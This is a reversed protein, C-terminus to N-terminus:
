AAYAGVCQLTTSHSEAIQKNMFNDDTCVKLDRQKDTTVNSCGRPLSNNSYFNKPRDCVVRVNDRAHHEDM